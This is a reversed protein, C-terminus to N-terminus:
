ASAALRQALEPPHALLTGIDRASMPKGFLYGQGNTCGQEALWDLNQMNEIGEATTLVGLSKGLGLIANVIKASEEEAGLSQVFSRDIKIKDFKLERLHSLSSYGTGFDDLAISVGVNQLSKLTSRASDIDSTLASETIEIELRGPPFGTETLIALLRAALHRDKFQVPSINLALRLHAPWSKADQTAQRLLSYSLETILGTDEAIPIFLNPTLM